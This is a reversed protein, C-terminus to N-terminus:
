KENKLPDCMFVFCLVFVFVNDPNVEDTTAVSTSSFYYNGLTATEDQGKIQPTWGGLMQHLVGKVWHNTWGGYKVDVM